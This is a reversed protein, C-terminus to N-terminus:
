KLESNELYIKHLKAVQKGLHTLDTSNHIVNDAYQLRQKRNIQNKIINEVEDKSHYDRQKIRKIQIEESTDVVLVYDVINTLKAEILLPIVLIVYNSNSNKARELITKKIVPHLLNELWIKEKKNTFIKKRLQQRNLSNDKKLIDKGFYKTIKELLKTNPKTIEKAIDDADIIDVGLKKFEKAVTTKGSGIGGTLGIILKSM